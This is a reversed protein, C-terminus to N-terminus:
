EEHTRSTCVEVIRGLVAESDAHVEDNWFRLIAIGNETLLREREEDSRMGEESAHSDGDLEVAIRSRPCYYDLIYPGFPHQRRFKFGSLRRHRLLTWMAQEAPTPERRMKRAFSRLQPNDEMM